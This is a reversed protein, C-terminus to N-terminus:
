ITEPDCSSALRSQLWSRIFRWDKEVTSLSVSLASAIEQNSAAAFFKLEVLRAHRPDLRALDELAADIDLVDVAGSASVVASEHLTVARVRGGRKAAQKAKAHDVLVRRIICAMLSMFRAHGMATLQRQQVLRLYAESVIATAQLTHDKRERALLRAAIAHVEPHFSQILEDAAEQEGQALANLLASAHEPSPASAM